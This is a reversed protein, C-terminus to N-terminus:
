FLKSIIPNDMELDSIFDKRTILQNKYEIIFGDKEKNINNIITNINDIISQTINEFSHIFSLVITPLESECKEISYLLDDLLDNFGRDELGKFNKYFSNFSKVLKDNPLEQDDESDFEVDNNFQPRELQIEKKIDGSIIFNDIYKKDTRNFKNANRLNDFMGEINTTNMMTRGYYKKTFHILLDKEDNNINNLNLGCNEFFIIYAKHIDIKSKLKRLIKIINDRNIGKKYFLAFMLFIVCMNKSYFEDISIDPNKLQQTEIVNNIWITFNDLIKQIFQEKRENLNIKNFYRAYDYKINLEPETLFSNIKTIMNISIDETIVLLKFIDLTMDEINRYTLFLIRDKMFCLTKESITNFLSTLCKIFHQKDYFEETLWKYLTNKIEDHMLNDQHMLVNLITETQQEETDEDVLKTIDTFMYGHSILTIFSKKISDIDNLTKPNHKSVWFVENLMNFKRNNDLKKFNKHNSLIHDLPKTLHNRCLLKLILERYKESKSWKDVNNDFENILDNESLRNNMWNNIDKLIYKDVYPKKINDDKTNSKYDKSEHTSKNNNPSKFKKDNSLKTEFSSKSKISEKKSHKKAVTSWGNQSM